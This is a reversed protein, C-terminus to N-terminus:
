RTSSVANWQEQKQRSLDVEKDKEERLDRAIKLMEQKNAFTDVQFM